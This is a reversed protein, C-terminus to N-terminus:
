RSRRGPWRARRARGLVLAGVAMLGLSVTIGSHARDAHDVALRPVEPLRPPRALPAEEVVQVPELVPFTTEALSLAAGAFGDVFLDAATLNGRM